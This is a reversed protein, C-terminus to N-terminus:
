DGRRYAIQFVDGQARQPHHLLTIEYQSFVGALGFLQHRVVADVFGNATKM